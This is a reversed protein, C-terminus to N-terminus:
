FNYVKIYENVFSIVEVALEKCGSVVGGRSYRVAKNIPNGIKLRRQGRLSSVRM